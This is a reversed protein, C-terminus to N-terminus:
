RRSPPTRTLWGSRPGGASRISGHGALATSPQPGPWSRRPRCPALGRAARGEALVTAETKALRIAVDERTIRGGRGTGRISAPDLQHDAILRRVVPSRVQSSSQAMPPRTAAESAIRALSTGISVTEGDPVLIELLQGSSSAPLETEVKDTEVEVLPEGETVQEGVAKLWRGVRIETVSEGLPPVVMDAVFGGQHWSTDLNM